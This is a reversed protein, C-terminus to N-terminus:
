PLSPKSPYLRVVGRSVDCVCQWRMEVLWVYVSACICFDVSKACANEQWMSLATHECSNWIATLWLTLGRLQRMWGSKGRPEELSLSAQDVTKPSKSHMISQCETYKSQTSYLWCRKLTELYLMINQTTKEFLKKFHM